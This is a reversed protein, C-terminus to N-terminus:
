KLKIITSLNSYIIGILIISCYVISNQLDSKITLTFISLFVLKAALSGYVVALGSNKVKIFITTVFKNIALMVSTALLGYVLSEIM